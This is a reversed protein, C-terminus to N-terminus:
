HVLELVSSYIQTPVAGLANGIHEWDVKGSEKIEVKEGGNM